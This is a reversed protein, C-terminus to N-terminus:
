EIKIIELDFVLDDFDDDNEYDNCHFRLYNTGLKEIVMACGGSLTRCIEPVHLDFSGNGIALDGGQLLVDIEFQKPTSKEDLRLQPFCGKPM